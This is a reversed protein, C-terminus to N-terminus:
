HLFQIESMSFLSSRHHGHLHFYDTEIKADDDGPHLDILFIHFLYVDRILYQWHTIELM